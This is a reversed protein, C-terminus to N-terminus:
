TVDNVTWERARHIREDVNSAREGTSFVMSGQKCALLTAGKYQPAEVFFSSVSVHSEIALDRQDGAAAPAKSPAHDFCEGLV